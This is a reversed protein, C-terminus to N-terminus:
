VPRSAAAEYLVLQRDSIGFASWSARWAALHASAFHRDLAAQDAWVESVHILGAELVDEAYAYGLCGKEARSREVMDQMVPRARSLNEAPLRITGMIILM